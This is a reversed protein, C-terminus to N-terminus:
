FFALKDSLDFIRAVSAVVTFSTVAPADLEVIVSIVTEFSPYSNNPTIPYKNEFADEPPAFLEIALTYQM